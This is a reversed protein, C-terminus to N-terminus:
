EDSSAWVGREEGEGKTLDVDVTDPRFEVQARGQLLPRRDEGGPAAPKLIEGRLLPARVARM